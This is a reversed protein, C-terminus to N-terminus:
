EGGGGIGHAREVARVLHVLDLLMLGATANEAMIGDDAWIEDDTLPKRKPPAALAARLAECDGVLDYADQPKVRGERRISDATELLAQAAERLADTM